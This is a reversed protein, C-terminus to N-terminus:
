YLFPAGVAVADPFGSRQLFREEDKRHVLNRLGQGKCTWNYAEQYELPLHHWGHAWMCNAKPVHDLKLKDSILKSAGYFDCESRLVTIKATPPLAAEVKQFWNATM